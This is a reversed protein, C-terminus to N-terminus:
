TSEARAFNVYITARIPEDVTDTGTTLCHVGSEMNGNKTTQMANPSNKM